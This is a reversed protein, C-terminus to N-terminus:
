KLFAKSLDLGLLYKCYHQSDTFTDLVSDRIKFCDELSGAFQNIVTENKYVELVCNSSERIVIEYESDLKTIIKAMINAGQLHSKM